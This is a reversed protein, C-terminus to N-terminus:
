GTYRNRRCHDRIRHWSNFRKPYTSVAFDKSSTRSYGAAEVLAAASPLFSVNVSGMVM